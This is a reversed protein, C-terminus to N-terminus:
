RSAPKRTAIYVGATAILLGAIDLGVLQDGLLWWAMLASCPPVLFFLTATQSASGKKILWLLISFAGFSVAIIQWGMALVFGSTFKIVPEPEILLMVLFHFLGAAAAQWFNSVSLALRASQKKQWLTGSTVALLSVVSAIFGALPLSGGIDLGLVMGAGAFGLVIGIWQRATVEEGLLPGALAGTLVPQLSVVLAALAAPFGAAVAYFVGGLYLGHFLIGSLAAAGIAPLPAALRDRQWFVVLAFGAAVLVFRFALAAFPTADLVIFKSSIFASSWIIVFILPFLREM